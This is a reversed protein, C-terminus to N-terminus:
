IYDDRCFALSLANSLRQHLGTFIPRAAPSVSHQCEIDERLIMARSIEILAQAIAFIRHLVHFPQVSVTGPVIAFSQM